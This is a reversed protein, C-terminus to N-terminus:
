EGLFLLWLTVVMGVVGVLIFAGLAFSIGEPSTVFPMLAVILIISVSVLFGVPPLRETISGM